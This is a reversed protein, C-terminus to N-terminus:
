RPVFTLRPHFENAFRNSDSLVYLGQATPVLRPARLGRERGPNWSLARGTTPNLAAIGVRDVAGPGKVARGQPNDAWRQHGAVYVAAGTIAVSTLSDGGTYNRWTPGGAGTGSIEWRAASDCLRTTGGYGGTTVIVFWRGDPSIDVDYVITDWASGCVQSRYLDTTWSGVSPLGGADVNLVVANRRLQGGVRDFNGIAVLRRGDPTMDFRMVRSLGVPAGVFALDAGRPAGTVQDVVAFNTRVAGRVRTFTGGLYVLGNARHIDYVMGNPTPAFGTVVAGTVPDLKALYPVAQGGITKFQGAVLLKGDSAVLLASVKGNPQPAFRTDITGTAKDYAFLYSRAVEGPKNWRKVRTFTGGVIVRTGLDVVAETRGDLVHPTTDSPNTGVVAPHTVPPPAAGAPAALGAVAALVVIGVTTRRARRWTGRAM